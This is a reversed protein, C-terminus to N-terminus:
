KKSLLNQEATNTKGCRNMKEMNKKRIETCLRDNIAQEILIIKSAISIM